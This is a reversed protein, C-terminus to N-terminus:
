PWIVSHAVVVVYGAGRGVQAERGSAIDVLATSVGSDNAGSAGLAVAVGAIGRSSLTFQIDDRASGSVWALDSLASFCGSALDSILVTRIRVRASSVRATSVAGADM